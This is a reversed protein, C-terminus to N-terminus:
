YLMDNLPFCVIILLRDNFINTQSHTVMIRLLWAIGGDRYGGFPFVFLTARIPYGEEDKHELNSDLWQKLLHRYFDRNEAIGGLKNCVMKATPCDRLIHITSEEPAGCIFCRPDDTM